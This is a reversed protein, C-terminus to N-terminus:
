IYVRVRPWLIAMPQKMRRCLHVAVDRDQAYPSNVVEVLRVEEFVDELDRQAAGITIVVEGTYGRPGWLWYSNHGGIAKPLGYRRGFYDVAAANGYGAGYIATTAREAESVSWYARAVARVRDEFGHMAAFYIPLQTPAHGREEARPRVGLWAQYRILAEEHLVPVFLPCTVLFPVVVLAALAAKPWTRRGALQGLVVAGAAFLIFYAPVVYYPKGHSAQFVVLLIPYIVGLARYPRAGASLLLFWLGAAWVPVTLWNMMLISARSFTLFSLPLNKQTSVNRMFELTAWDHRAQWALHPLVIVAAIAAGLWFRRDRLHRRAPTLLVGLGFAACLFGISYKNLLGLGVVLGFVPWLRPEDRGLTRAALLLALTWFLHDFPNMSLMHHNAACSPALAVCLCALLQGFRGAGLERALLGTVLASTLGAVLAPFRLAPLSDGLVSRSAAVIFAILPPHDVYGWDLHDACAVYYLEDWGIGYRGLVVLHLLLVGGLPALLWTWAIPPKPTWAEAQEAGAVVPPSSPEPDPPKNLAVV